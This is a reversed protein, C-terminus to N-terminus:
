LATATMIMAMAHTAGLGPLVGIVVGIFTGLIMILANDWQLIATLATLMQDM